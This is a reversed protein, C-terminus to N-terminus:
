WLLSNQLKLFLCSNISAKVYSESTFSPEKPTSNIQQLALTLVQATLNRDAPPTELSQTSLRSSLPLIEVQPQPKGQWGRWGDVFLWSTCDSIPDLSILSFSFFMLTMNWAELFCTIGRSKWFRNRSAILCISQCIVKKCIIYQTVDNRM